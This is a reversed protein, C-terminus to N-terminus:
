NSKKFIYAKENKLLNILEVISGKEFREKFLSLAEEELLSNAVFLLAASNDNWSNRFNLEEILSSTPYDSLQLCEDKM